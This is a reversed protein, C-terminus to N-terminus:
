TTLWPAVLEERQEATLRKAPPLGLANRIRNAEALSCGIKRALELDSVVVPYFMLTLKERPKLVKDKDPGYKAKSLRTFTSKRSTALCNTCKPRPCNLCLDIMEPADGVHHESSM